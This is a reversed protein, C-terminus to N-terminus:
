PSYNIIVDDVQPSSVGSWALWIKYRVYRFNNHYVRSLRMQVNPGAPRYVTGSTGDPGVYNWPGGSNNSTAVQFGVQGGNAVGQWLISNFASGCQPPAGYCGIQTDFISSILWTNADFSGPGGVPPPPGGRWVTLVKFDSTACWLTNACNFSVWGIVNNWAWNSFVGSAPNIHAQYTAGAPCVWTSGNYTSGSSANGCFSFWGFSSSWAWGALNGNSDNSVFWTGAPASCNPVPLSACNLVLNGFQLGNAVGVLNTDSVTVSGTDFDLWGTADNWAYREGNTNNPNINGGGNIAFAVGSLLICASTIISTKLLKTKM